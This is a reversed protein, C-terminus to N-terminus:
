AFLVADPMASNHSSEDQVHNKRIAHSVSIKEGFVRILESIGDTEM